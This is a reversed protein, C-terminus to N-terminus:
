PEGVEKSEDHDTGAYIIVNGAEKICSEVKKRFDITCDKDMYRKGKVGEVDKIFERCASVMEVDVVNSERYPNVNLEEKIEPDELYESPIRRVIDEYSTKVIRKSKVYDIIINKTINDIQLKTLIM